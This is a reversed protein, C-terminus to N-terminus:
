LARQGRTMWMPGQTCRILSDIRVTVTNPALPGVPCSRVRRSSSAPCLTTAAVRWGSVKGNVAGQRVTAPASAVLGASTASATRSLSATTDTSPVFYLRPGIM